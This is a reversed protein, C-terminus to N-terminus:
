TQGSTRGGDVLEGRRELHRKRRNRLVDLHELPGPQDYTALSGLVSRAAEVRCRELLARCPRLLVPGDPLGAEVAHVVVEFSELRLSLCAFVIVSLLPEWSATTISRLKSAGTARM